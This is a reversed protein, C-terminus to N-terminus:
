RNALDLVSSALAEADTVVDLGDRTRLWDRNRRHLEDTADFRNLHVIVAPQERLAEVALRVANISGLGADAVLVVLDADCARALDVTDGDDALPSRVGGASEVFLIRDDAPKPIEAALQAITFPPLGLADAAMPPAMPTALWRAPPCVAEPDAGTAAALVHADTANDAPDFSQVPKYADVTHGLAILVQAVTATVWTKGVETGTGAVLVIM